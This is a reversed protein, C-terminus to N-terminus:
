NVSFQLTDSSMPSCSVTHTGPTTKNRSKILHYVDKNNFGNSYTIKTQDNVALHLSIQYVLEIEMKFFPHILGLPTPFAQTLTTSQNTASTTKWFGQVRSQRDLARGKSECSAIQYGPTMGAPMAEQDRSSRPLGHPHRCPQSNPGVPYCLRLTRWSNKHAAESSCMVPAYDMRAGSQSIM